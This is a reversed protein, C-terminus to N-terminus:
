IIRQNYVDNPYQSRKRPKFTENFNLMYDPHLTVDYKTEGKISDNIPEPPGRHTRGRYNVAFKNFRLTEAISDAAKIVVARNLINVQKDVDFGLSQAKEGYVQDMLLHVLHDKPKVIGEGTLKYVVNIIGNNIKQVNEVSYFRKKVQAGDSGKILQHGMQLHYKNPHDSLYLFPAMQINSVNCRDDENNM